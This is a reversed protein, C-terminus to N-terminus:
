AAEPVEVELVMEEIESLRELTDDRMNKLHVKVQVELEELAARCLRFGALAGRMEDTQLNYFTSQNEEETGGEVGFAMRMLALAPKMIPMCGAESLAKVDREIDDKFHGIASKKASEWLRLNNTEHLMGIPGPFESALAQKLTPKWTSELDKLLREEKDTDAEEYGPTLDFRSLDRPLIRLIAAFEPRIGSVHEGCLATALRQAREMGIHPPLMAHIGIARAAIREALTPAQAQAAAERARAADCFAIADKPNGFLPAAIKPTEGDIPSNPEVNSNM